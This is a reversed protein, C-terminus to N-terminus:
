SLTSSAFASVVGGIYCILLAAILSDNSNSAM